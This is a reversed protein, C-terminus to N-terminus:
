QTRVWYFGSQSVQHLVSGIRVRLSIDLRHDVSLRAQMGEISQALLLPPGQSGQTRILNETNTIQYRVTVSQHDPTWTVAEMPFRVQGPEVVSLVLGPSSTNLAPSALALAGQVETLMSQIAERAQLAADKGTKSYGNAYTQFMQGVILLLLSFIGMSVIMEFLTFARM